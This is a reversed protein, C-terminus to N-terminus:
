ERTLRTVDSLELFPLAGTLKHSVALMRTIRRSAAGEDTSLRYGKFMTMGISDIGVVCGVRIGYYLPLFSRVTTATPDYAELGLGVSCSSPFLYGLYSHFVGRRM